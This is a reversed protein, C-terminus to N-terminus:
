RNSVESRLQGALELLRADTPFRDLARSVALAAEMYAGNRLLYAVLTAAVEPREPALDVARELALQADGLRGAREAVRGVKLLLDVDAPAVGWARRLHELATEYEGRREAIAALALYPGPSRSDLRMAQRAAALAGDPDGDLDRAQALLSWARVRVGRPYREFSVLGEVRAMASPFDEELLDWHALELLVLPDDEDESLTARAAEPDGARRLERALRLLGEVRRRPYAEVWRRAGELRLWQEDEPTLEIAPRQYGPALGAATALHDLFEEIRGSQRALLAQIRHLYPSTPDRQLAQEFQEVSVDQLDRAYAARALNKFGEPDSPFWRIQLHGLRELGSGLAEAGAGVLDGPQLRRSWSVTPPLALLSSSALARAGEEPSALTRGVLHRWQWWGLSGVFEVLAACAVITILWASRQRRV